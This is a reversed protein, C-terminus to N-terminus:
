GNTATVGNYVSTFSCSSCGSGSLLDGSCMWCNSLNGRILSPDIYQETYATITVEQGNITETYTREVTPRVGQVGGDESLRWPHDLSPTGIEFKM